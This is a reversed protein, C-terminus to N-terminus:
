FNLAAEQRPASPSIRGEAQRRQSRGLWIGLGAWGIAVPVAFATLAILGWGLGTLAGETFAGIVDGARYIPVDIVSKAKYKDERSVVTFLTERAPRMFGRQTARFTADVLIYMALSASIALGIFGLGVVIPVVALAFPVGMRKLVHGTVLAQLILTAVQTYTNINAFLTTQADTDAGLAAVMQLQTFYLLTAIIALILMYLGTGFLYPSKLVAALGRWPSGGITARDDVAPPAEPDRVTAPTPVDPQQRALIRVMGVALTLSVAGALLLSPTGFPEALQGALIPGVIAGVTGGVALAGFLRKSQELSYRDAMLAWFVMTVFLNFVSFYVYFVMGTTLGVAESALTLILYFVLLSAAFFLYSATIFTVRNFRSVMWGFIPYIALGGLATGIFLWRVADFGAQVGLAERAPRVVMIGTLIFFHFLTAAIVSPVEERRINSFTQLISM